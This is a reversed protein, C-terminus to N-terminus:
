PTVPSENNVVGSKAFRNIVQEVAPRSVAEDDGAIAARQDYVVAHLCCRTVTEAIDHELEVSCAKVDSRVNVVLHEQGYRFSFMGDFLDTVDHAFFQRPSRTERQV